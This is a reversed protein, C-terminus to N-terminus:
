RERIKILQLRFDDPSDNILTIIYGEKTVGLPAGDVLAEGLFSFDEKSWAAVFHDRDTFDRTDYFTETENRFLLLILEDNFAPFLTVSQNDILHTRYEQPNRVEDIFEDSLRFSPPKQDLRTIAEGQELDYVQIFPLKIHTTFLHNSSCDVAIIPDQLISRNGALYPDSQGLVRILNFNEDFIGAVSSTDSLADEFFNITLIWEGNCQQFDRSTIDIGEDILTPFSQVNQKERDFKKILALAKDHIIVNDLPDLGIFRASLVEEPGQGESGFQGIFRGDYDILTVGTPHRLNALAIYDRETSSSAIPYISHLNNAAQEDLSIEHHVVVDIQKAADRQVTNNCGIFLFIGTLYLFHQKLKFIDV